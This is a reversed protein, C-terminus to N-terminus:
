KHISDVGGGPCSDQSIPCGSTPVAQPPTDDVFDGPPSCGGQFVHYLGLWHGVEHTATKGMNYGLEEGGPVTSFQFVVGDDTLNDNVNWPFTAYGLLNNSFNVSYLNLTSADGQRLSQKMQSQLSSDPTIFRFWSRNDVYNTATLNFAFGYDKYDQNLVQIQSDVTSQTLNGEPGDHIVHFVTQVTKTANALLAIDALQHAGGGAGGRSQSQRLRHLRAREAAVLATAYEDATTNTNEPQACFRRRPTLSARISTILAPDFVDKLSLPAAEVLTVPAGLVAAVLLLSFARVQM